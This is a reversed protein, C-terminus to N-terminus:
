GLEFFEQQGAKPKDVFDLIRFCNEVKKEFEEYLLYYLGNTFQSLSILSKEHNTFSNYIKDSIIMPLKIYEQFTYSNFTRNSRKFITSYVESLFNIILSKHLNVNPTLLNSIMLSTILKNQKQNKAM